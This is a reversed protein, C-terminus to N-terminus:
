NQYICYILVLSVSVRKELFLVIFFYVKRGKIYNKVKSNAFLDFWPPRNDVCVFYQYLGPPFPNYHATQLFTNRKSLTNNQRQLTFYWLDTTPLIHISWVVLALFSNRM